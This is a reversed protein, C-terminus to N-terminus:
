ASVKALARLTARASARLGALGPADPAGDGGYYDADSKLDALAGADLEVVARRASASIVVRRGPHDGCREAHDQWFAPPLTYRTAHTM